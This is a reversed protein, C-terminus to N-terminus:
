NYIKYIKNFHVCVFCHSKISHTKRISRTVMVRKKQNKYHSTNQLYCIPRRERVVSYGFDDEFPEPKGENIKLIFSSCQRQEVFSWTCQSTVDLSKMLEM